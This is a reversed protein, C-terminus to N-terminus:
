FSYQVGLSVNLGRVYKDDDLTVTDLTTAVDLNFFKMFTIGANLYRLESGALNQSFGFRASPLWWSDTAYGATVNVWQFKDLMPDSVPNADVEARLSWAKDETFLAAQLTLQRELTFVRNKDLKKLVAASSYRRRDINPFKYDSEITNKLHASFLYHQSTFSLGLDIDFGNEYTYNGHRIDEFISETDDLDGVRVGLNTMGVNYFTPKVGWYLSGYDNSFWEKSYSLNLKSIRASKVLLLSDNNVNLKIGKNDPNYYLTIGGTLDLEQVGDSPAFEPIRKLESMAQESNFEIPEIIGVAKSFGTYSAGFLVTGGYYDSNVLFPAEIGVETKAYGETSILALLSALSIVRGKVVDVRSELDPYQEFVKDWDILDPRDVPDPREIPNAPAGPEPDSPKFSNSLENYKDFLDDVDGYELSASLNVMGKFMLSSHKTDLVLATNAPNADSSLAQQSFNLKAHKPQIQATSFASFSLACLFCLYQSHKSNKM